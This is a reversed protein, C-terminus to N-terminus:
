EYLRWSIFELEKIGIIKKIFPFWNCLQEVFTINNIFSAILISLLFFGFILTITLIIKM